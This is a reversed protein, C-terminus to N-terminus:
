VYGSETGRADGAMTVGRRCGHSAMPLPLLCVGPDLSVDAGSHTVFTSETPCGRVLDGAGTLWLDETTGFDWLAERIARCWLIPRM